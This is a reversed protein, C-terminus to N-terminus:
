TKKFLVGQFTFDLPQAMHAWPPFTLWYLAESVIGDVLCYGSVIGNM